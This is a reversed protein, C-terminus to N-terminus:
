KVFHWGLYINLVNNKVNVSPVFSPVSGPASTQLDKYMNGLSLNYRGGVVLGKFPHIELGGALGYDFRNYYSLLKDYTGSGSNSQVAKANILFAMQAGIQIQVFRTINITSLQPLLIYDLDVNGTNTNTEFNYGQRSFDIESHFGFLGRPKPALFLGFSFGTNSSNNISSVKTINAFNLGGKVGIQGWLVGPFIVLSVILLKKMDKINVKNGIFM